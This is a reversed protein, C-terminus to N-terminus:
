RDLIEKAARQGSRLAGAVTGAEESDTAEGAFFLTDKLPAALEERAGEGGVLLYSYGGRSWPDAHWDQVYAGLLPPPAGFVKKVSGLATAVLAPASAGALRAAKPGGAWCTLLPARMPLPTWFTPFAAGPVHFFAVGPARRRWFEEDFALAVRVVPGSTLKRLAAQKERLGILPVPLTVVARRARAGNAAVAGRRWQLQRVPSGLRLRVGRRVLSAALWDLLPGYGGQPRPQSHDLEGGEGWEEVISRASVRKPDAADFGEVMMRAFVKTKESIKRASLFNEFSVDREVHAGRTARQAEVFGNIPRLRGGVVTRQERVSDVAARRARRLLAHTPAAEGHMFEAGLEVPVDLGPFRRTWCRGGIRDRAELIV